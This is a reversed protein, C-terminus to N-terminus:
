SFNSEDCVEFLRGGVFISDGARLKKGRVLCTEGNVLVKGDLILQKAEGGSLVVGSFKLFSDLTIYETHIKIQNKKIKLKM